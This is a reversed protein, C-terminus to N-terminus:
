TKKQAVFLYRQNQILRIDFLNEGLILIMQTIFDSECQAFSDCSTSILFNACSVRDYKWMCTEANDHGFDISRYLASLTIDNTKVFTVILAVTQM